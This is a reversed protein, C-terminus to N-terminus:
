SEGLKNPFAKLSESPEKHPSDPLTLTTTTAGDVKSKNRM